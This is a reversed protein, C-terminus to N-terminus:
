LMRATSHLVDTRCLLNRLTEPHIIRLSTHHFALTLVYRAQVLNKVLDKDVGRVVLL